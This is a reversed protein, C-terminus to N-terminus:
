EEIKKCFFVVEDKLLLYKAIEQETLIESSKILEVSFGNKELRKKYDNGYIRVHDKQGFAQLRDYEDMITSDEYTPKDEYFIPVQFIGIGGKIISRSLESMARLDNEVHEFVHNCIVIDFVEDKFIVDQIDMNIDVYPSNLDSTIYSINKNTKLIRSINREPAVHLLSLRKNNKSRDDLLYGLKSKIFLLLLRERENSHCCPCKSNLRYGSGIIKNNDAALSEFGSPLMKSFSRKCFPCKYQTGM